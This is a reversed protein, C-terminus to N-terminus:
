VYLVPLFSHLLFFKYNHFLSLQYILFVPIKLLYYYVDFVM